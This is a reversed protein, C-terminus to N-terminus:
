QSQSTPNLQHASSAQRDHPEPRPRIQNSSFDSNRYQLSPHETRQRRRLRFQQQRITRTQGPRGRHPSRALPPISVALPRAPSHEVFHFTDFSHHAFISNIVASSAQASGEDRILTM